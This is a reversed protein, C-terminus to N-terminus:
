RCSGPTTALWRRAVRLADDYDPFSRGRRRLLRVDGAVVCGARPPGLQRRGARAVRVEGGGRVHRRRDRRGHQRALRRRGDAITQEWLDLQKKLRDADNCRGQIVQIFM